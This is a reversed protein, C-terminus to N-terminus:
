LGLSLGPPEVSRSHVHQPSPDVGLDRALRDRMAHATIGNSPRSIISALVDGADELGSDDLVWAVNDRRGRTMAVYAGARSTTAEIVAIGHDVTDGQNGYGTVAWGLEVHSRVYNGPLEVRGRDPDVVTLRGDRRVDVVTWTQRNRVQIGHTTRLNPDNRRTVVRDDAGVFTGDRLAVVGDMRDGRRLRQIAVNIARASAASSTTIAVTSGDAGLREHDAAIQRALLAPHISKLRSHSVYREIARRDGARLQLSAEAEWVEVFRHVRDLHLARLNDCWHAFMGGRGVAPLQEPDGVCALRWGHRETLAVLRALDDTSAM